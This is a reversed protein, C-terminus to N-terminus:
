NTSLHFLPNHPFKTGGCGILAKTVPLLQFGITPPLVPEDHEDYLDHYQDEIITQLLSNDRQVFEDVWDEEDCDDGVMAELTNLTFQFQADTVNLSFHYLDNDGGYFRFSVIVTTM